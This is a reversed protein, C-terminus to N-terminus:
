APAGGEDAALLAQRARHALVLRLASFPVAEPLRAKLAKIRSRMAADAAAAAMSASPAAGAAGAADAAGAAGAAPMPAESPAGAEAPPLEAALAADSAAQVEEAAVAADVLAATGDDVGLLHWIYAHGGTSRAM